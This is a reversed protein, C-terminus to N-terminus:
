VVASVRKGRLDEVIGSEGFLCWRVNCRKESVVLEAHLSVVRWESM